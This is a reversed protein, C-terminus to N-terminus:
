MLCPPGRSIFRFEPLGGDQNDVGYRGSWKICTHAPVPKLGAKAQSSLEPPSNQARSCYFDSMVGFLRAVRPHPELRLGASGLLSSIRRPLQWGLAGLSCCTQPSLERWCTLSQAQALYLGGLPIWSIGGPMTVMVVRVSFWCQRAGHPRRGPIEQCSTGLCCSGCSHKWM